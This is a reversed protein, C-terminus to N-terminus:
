RENQRKKREDSRQKEFNLTACLKAIRLDVNSTSPETIISSEANRGNRQGNIIRELTPCEASILIVSIFQWSVTCMTFYARWDNPHYHMDLLVCSSWFLEVFGCILQIWGFLKLNEEHQNSCLTPFIPTFLILAMLLMPWPSLYEVISVVLASLVNFIIIIAQFSIAWDFLTWNGLKHIYAQAARQGNIANNLCTRFGFTSFEGINNEERGDWIEMERPISTPLNYM